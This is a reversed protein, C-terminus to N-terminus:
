RDLRRLIDIESFIEISLAHMVQKVCQGDEKVDTVQRVRGQKEFRHNILVSVIPEQQKFHLDRVCQWPERAEHITQHRRAHQIPIQDLMEPDEAGEVQKLVEACCFHVSLGHELHKM